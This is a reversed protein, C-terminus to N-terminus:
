PQNRRMEDPVIGFVLDAATALARLTDRWLPGREIPPQGGSATSM